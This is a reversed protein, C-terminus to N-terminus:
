ISTIFAVLFQFFAICVWLVLGGFLLTLMPEILTALAATRRSAIVFKKQALERLTWAAVRNNPAKSLAEAEGASILRSQALGQWVDAGQEIENRAFLLRQRLRRNFHYRALTSLAGTIPRGAEVAVALMRYLDVIQQQAVPPLIKPAVQRHFFRGPARFWTFWIVMIVSILMLWGLNNSHVLLILALYARPIAANMERGLVIFTPAVVNMVLTILMYCVFLLILWYAASIKPRIRAARQDELRLKLLENFTQTWTGSEGALRLALVDEDSLADPTQELAAVLTAGADIRKALASLLSRYYGRHETALSAILPVIDLRERQGVALIQLLTYQRAALPEGGWWVQTFWTPGRRITRLQSTDITSTM